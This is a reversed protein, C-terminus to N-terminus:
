MADSDAQGLARQQLGGGPAMDVAYVAVAASPLVYVTFGGHRKVPNVLQHLEVGGGGVAVTVYRSPWATSPGAAPPPPLPSTTSSGGDGGGGLPPSAATSCSDGSTGGDEGLPARRARLARM